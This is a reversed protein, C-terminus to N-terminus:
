IMRFNLHYDIESTNALFVVSQNKSYHTLAFSKVIRFRKLTNPEKIGANRLLTCKLLCTYFKEKKASIM